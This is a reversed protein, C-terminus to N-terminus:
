SNNNLDLDAVPNNNTDRADMFTGAGQEMLASWTPTTSGAIIAPTAPDVNFRVFLTARPDPTPLQYGNPLVLLNRNQVLNWNWPKLYHMVGASDAEGIQEWGYGEAQQFFQPFIDDFNTCSSMQEIKKEAARI